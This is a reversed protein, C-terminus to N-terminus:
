FGKVIPLNKIYRDYNKLDIEPLDSDDLKTYIEDSDIRIHGEAIISSEISFIVFFDFDTGADARSLSFGGGHWTWGDINKLDWRFEKKIKGTELNMVTFRGSGDATEYIIFNGSKDLVANLSLEGMYKVTGKNGDLFFMPRKWALKKQFFVLTRKTDAQRYNGWFSSEAQYYLEKKNGNSKYIYLTEMRDDGYDCELWEGAKLPKLQAVAESYLPLLALTLFILALSKKM